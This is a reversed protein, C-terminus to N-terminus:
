LTNKRFQIHALGVVVATELRLIRKGLGAVQWGQQRFLEMEQNSFGGEPGCALRTPLEPHLDLNALGPANHDRAPPHLVINDCGTEERAPLVQPLVKPMEIEPLFPNGSQKCAGIAIKEWHQRRTRAKEEREIRVVTRETLLPTIRTVGLEVAKEIIDDLKRHRPLAVLLELPLPEPWSERGSITIQMIKASKDLKKIEGRYRNGRGDLLNIIDGTRRRLVVAQHRYEDGSILAENDTIARTYAFNAM